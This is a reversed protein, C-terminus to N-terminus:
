LYDKGIVYIERSTKNVAKPRFIKVFKFNKKTEKVFENSLEGEFIKCVFNGGRKLILKAIALAKDALLMSNLADASRMGSTKPALDSVVADFQKKSDTNKKVRLGVVDKQIFIMNKELIIKLDEKDIGVVEGKDGIKRSIYLMWSGPACGLDLVSDGKQFIKHKEDIEKLKYVSRAPYGEDRARQTYFEEKKNRRYVWYILRSQGVRRRLLFAGTM